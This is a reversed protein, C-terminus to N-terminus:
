LKFTGIHYSLTKAVELQKEAVDTVRKILAAKAEDIQGELCWTYAQILQHLNERVMSDLKLIESKKVITTKGGFNSTAKVRYTTPREECECESVKLKCGSETLSVSIHYIKM